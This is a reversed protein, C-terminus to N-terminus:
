VVDMRRWLNLRKKLDPPLAEESYSVSYGGMKEAKIGQRDPQNYALSVLANCIAELEPPIGDAVFDYGAEYTVKINQHGYIWGGARYIYGCAHYIKYYTSDVLQDTVVPYTWHISTVSVIPYNALFLMTTGNGDYLEATYTTKLFRRKCYLEMFDTASNILADLLQLDVDDKRMFKKASEQTTLAYAKM